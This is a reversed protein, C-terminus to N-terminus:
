RALRQQEAATRKLFTLLSEVLYQRYGPKPPIHDGRQWRGIQIPHEGLAEAIDVQQIEKFKLMGQLAIQLTDEKTLDLTRIYDHLSSLFDGVCSAYKKRVPAPLEARKPM